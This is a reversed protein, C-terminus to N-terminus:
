LEQRTFLACAAIVSFVLVVAGTILSQVGPLQGTVIVAEAVKEMTTPLWPVIAQPLMTAILPLGFVVGLGAAAVASQAPMVVSLLVTIAVTMVFYLALIAFALVVSLLAFQAGFFFTTLGLGVAGPVLLVLLLVGITSATFKSLIFAIRSAPKSMIWAATGSKKEEIVEGMAVLVAGIVLMSGVLAIPLVALGETPAPQGEAKAAQVGFAVLSLIGAILGTSIGGVWLWRRTSFWDRLEKKLMHGFGLLPGVQVSPAVAIEPTATTITAEM